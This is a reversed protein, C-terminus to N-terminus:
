TPYTCIEVLNRDPDRIYVSRMPGCAGTQEVPGREIAIGRTGLLDVVEDIPQDSVLCFDASGSVPNRARPLIPAGDALHLNFKQNGFHIAIRGNGFTRKEMGLGRCYFDLTAQIDRVHLVLHDLATIM